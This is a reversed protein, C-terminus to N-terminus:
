LTFPNILEVKGDLSKFDNINNTLLPSGDVMATAYIIADPLKIRFKKRLNITELVILDDLGFLQCSSCIQQMYFQEAQSKFPYGLSEIYSIISIGPKSKPEILNEIKM